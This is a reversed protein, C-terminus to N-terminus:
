AVKKNEEKNEIIYNVVKIAQNLTKVGITFGARHVFLLGKLNTKNQLRKGTEGRWSEPALINVKDGNENYHNVSKIRWSEGEECENHPYIIFLANTENSIKNLVEADKITTQSIFYQDEPNYNEIDNLFMKYKKINVIESYFSNELHIFAMDVAKQFDEIKNEERNCKSIMQSLTWNKIGNDHMDIKQILNTEVKDLVENDYKKLYGKRRLFRWVLGCSSFLIEKKKTKSKKWKHNFTRQHHDFNKYKENYEGGVDIVFSNKDEKAKKLIIDDRTRIIKLNKKYFMKILAIAFVEDSHFTGDHTYINM